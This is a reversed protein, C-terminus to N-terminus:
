LENNMGKRYVLKSEDWDWNKYKNKLYERVKLAIFARERGNDYEDHCSRCMTVINQEIGLGGQSRRIYHSDPWAYPSGCIICREGDREWVKIKTDKSISCAKTRNHM